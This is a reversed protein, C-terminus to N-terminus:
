IQCATKTCPPSIWFKIFLLFFYISIITSIIVFLMLVIDFNRKKYFFKGLGTMGRNTLWMSLALRMKNDFSVSCKRGLLKDVFCRWGERVYVRYKPFFVSAVAFYLLLALCPVCFLM